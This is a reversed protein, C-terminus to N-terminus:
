RNRALSVDGGGVKLSGCYIATQCRTNSKLPLAHGRSTARVTVPLSRSWLGLRTVGSRHHRGDNHAWLSILSSEPLSPFVSGGGGTEATNARRRGSASVSRTRWSKSVRVRGSPHRSCTSRWMYTVYGDSLTEKHSVHFFLFRLNRQRLSAHLM